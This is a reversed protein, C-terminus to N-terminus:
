KMRREYPAIIEDIKRSWDLRDFSWGWSHEGDNYGDSYALALLDMIDEYM